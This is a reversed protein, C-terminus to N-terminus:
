NSDQQALLTKRYRQDAVNLGSRCQKRPGSFPQYSNDEVRYSRYRSTCFAVHDDNAMAVPQGTEREAVETPPVCRRRPGGSFPQYSRDAKVYSRYRSSCWKDAKGEALDFEDAKEMFQTRNTMSPERRPVTQLALLTPKDNVNSPLREYAQERPDVRKVETTWLPEQSVDLVVPTAPKARADSAIRMGGAIIPLSCLLLVLGVIVNQM